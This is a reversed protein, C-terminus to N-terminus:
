ETALLPNSYAREGTVERGLWAPPVFDRAAAESAFEVEAVAMGGLKGEYIDVEVVLPGLPVEYRLKCLRRGETLPWLEEWQAATLPLNIEERVLGTRRKFTLWRADDSARLRVEVEGSPVLYGQAIRHCRYQALDEPMTEILFKREIELM